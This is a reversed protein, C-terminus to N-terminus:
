VLELMFSSYRTRWMDPDFDLAVEYAAIACRLHNHQAFSQGLADFSDGSPRSFSKTIFESIQSSSNGLTQCSKPLSRVREASKIVRLFPTASSVSTVAFVGLLLCAKAWAYIAREQNQPVHLRIEEQVYDVM